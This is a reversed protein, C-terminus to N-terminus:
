SADSIGVKQQIYQDNGLEAIMFNALNGSSIHHQNYAPPYNVSTVYHDDADKNKIDPACVFTYNLHSQKLYNYAELHEKGVAVYELPYDPTDMILKNENANLVGIGGVALIRKVGAKSMQTVINKMGLSRTKDVGTFDGGVASLVAASNKVANYVDDEDFVYGKIAEFKDEWIDMDIFKDINRGFAKVIYGQALAQKVLKSGVMGSAGFITIVM